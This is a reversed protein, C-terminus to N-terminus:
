VKEKETPDVFYGMMKIGTLKDDDYQLPIDKKELVNFDSKMVRSPHLYFNSGYFRDLEKLSAIRGDFVILCGPKIKDEILMKQITANPLDIYQGQDLFPGPGDNIILDYKLDPLKDFTSFNQHLMKDSNWVIPNAKHIKIHQKLESPILEEALRVCKDFQEITDIHYDTEGKEKLALAVVSASVGIGTGLDLVNKINHSKVLKYLDLANPWIMIWSGEPHSAFYRYLNKLNLQMKM